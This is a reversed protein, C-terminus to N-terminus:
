KWVSTSLAAAFAQIMGLPKTFDLVFNHPGVKGFLLKIAEPEEASELQFNQASAVRCRGYFDM